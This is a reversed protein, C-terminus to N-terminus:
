YSCHSLVSIIFTGFAVIALLIKYFLSDFFTKKELLEFRKNYNDLQSKIQVLRENMQNTLQNNREKVIELEKILLDQNDDIFKYTEEFKAFCQKNNENIQNTLLKYKENIVKDLGSIKVSTDRSNEDVQKTLQESKDKVNNLENEFFAKGKNIINHVEEIKITLENYNDGIKKEINEQKQLEYIVSELEQRALDSLEEKSANELRLKVERVVMRNAVIGMLGIGFLKKSFVAMDVQANFLAKTANSNNNVALIIDELVDQVKKIKAANRGITWFESQKMQKLKEYKETANSANGDTQGIYDTPNNIDEYKFTNETSNQKEISNAQNVLISITDIVQEKLNNTDLLEANVTKVDALVNQQNENFTNM